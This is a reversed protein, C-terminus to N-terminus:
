LPVEQAPPPRSDCPTEHVSFTVPSTTATCAIGAWGLLLTLLLQILKRLM